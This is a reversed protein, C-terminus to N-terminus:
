QFLLPSLDTTNSPSKDLQVPNAGDTNAAFVSFYGTGNDNVFVIHRSDESWSPDNSDGPMDLITKQNKGSLDITALVDNAGHSEKTVFLMKASAQDYDPFWNTLQNQTLPATAGTQTNLTYLNDSYPDKQQSRETIVAETGSVPTPKWGEIGQSILTTTVAHQNSGDPNMAWIDGFNGNADTKKYLIQQGDATFVPDYNNVGGPDNTLQLVRNPDQLNMTFIQNNNGARNSYFVLTRQDPSIEPNMNNSQGSTLATLNGTSIYKEYIQYYGSRNSVFILKANALGQSQVTSVAQQKTTKKQHVFFSHSFHWKPRIGGLVVLVILVIAIVSLVVKGAKSPEHSYRSM